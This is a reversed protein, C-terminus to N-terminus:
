ILSLAYRAIGVDGQHELVGGHDDVMGAVVLQRGDPTPVSGAPWDDGATATLISGSRAGALDYIDTRIDFGGAGGPPLTRAAVFLRQGDPSLAIRMYYENPSATNRTTSLLALTPSFGALFGDQVFSPTTTFGALFLRGNPAVVLDEGQTWTGSIRFRASREVLGDSLRYSELLVAGAWGAAADMERIAVYARTTGGPAIRLAFTDGHLRRVQWLTTGAAADFAAVVHDAGAYGSVIIRSGAIAIQSGIESSSRPLETKWLLAGTGADLAVVGVSTVNQADSLYGTAYVRIGDIAIALPVEYTFDTNEVSTEWLLAGTAANRAGIVWRSDAASGGRDFVASALFHREGSTSLAHATAVTALGSPGAAWKLAGAQDFAAARDPLLVFSSAGDPSLLLDETREENGLDTQTRSLACPGTWLLVDCAAVSAVSANDHNGAANPALPVLILLVFISRVRIPYGGSQWHARLNM